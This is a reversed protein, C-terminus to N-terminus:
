LSAQRRGEWNSRMEIRLEAILNSVARISTLSATEIGAVNLCLHLGDLSHVKVTLAGEVPTTCHCPLPLFASEIIQRLEVDPIM